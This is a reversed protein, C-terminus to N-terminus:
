TTIGDIKRAYDEADKAYKPKMVSSNWTDYLEHGPLSEIQKATPLEGKKLEAKGDRVLKCLEIILTKLLDPNALNIEKRPVFTADAGLSAARARKLVSNIQRLKDLDDELPDFLLAAQRSVDVVIRLGPIEPMRSMDQGVDPGGEPNAHLKAISFHGRMKMKLCGVAITRNYSDGFEVTFPAIRGKPPNQKQENDAM